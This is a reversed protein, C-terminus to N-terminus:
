KLVGTGTGSELKRGALTSLSLCHYLSLFKPEQWIHSFLTSNRDGQKPIAWGQQGSIPPMCWERWGSSEERKEERRGTERREGKSWGESESDILYIIKKLSADQFYFYVSEEVECSGSLTMKKGLKFGFRLYYKLCRLRQSSVLPEYLTKCGFLMRSQSWMSMDGLFGPRSHNESSLSMIM